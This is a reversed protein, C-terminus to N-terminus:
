GYKLEDKNSAMVLKAINQKKIKHEQKKTRAFISGVITGAQMLLNWPPLVEPL